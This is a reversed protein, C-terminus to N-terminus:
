NCLSFNSSKWVQSIGLTREAKHLASFLNEKQHWYGSTAKSTHLFADQDWQHEPFLEKLAEGLSSYHYMLGGGGLRIVDTKRM